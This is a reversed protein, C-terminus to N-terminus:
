EIVREAYQDEDEYKSKHLKRPIKPKSLM